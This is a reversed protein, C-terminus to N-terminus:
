QQHDENTCMIEGETLLIYEGGRPCRPIQGGNIYPALDNLSETFYGKGQELTKVYHLTQAAKLAYQNAKCAATDASHSLTIFRVLVVAVLIILIVLTVIIEVLTFGQQHTKIKLFIKRM